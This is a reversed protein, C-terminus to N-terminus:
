CLYLMWNQMNEVAENNRLQMEEWVQYTFHRKMLNQKQSKNDRYFNEKRNFFIESNHSAPFKKKVIILM